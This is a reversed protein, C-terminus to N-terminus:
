HIVIPRKPQFQRLQPFNELVDQSVQYGDSLALKVDFPIRGALWHDMSRLSGRYETEEKVKRFLQYKVVCPEQIYQELLSFFTRVKVEDITLADAGKAILRSIANRGIVIGLEQHILVSIKGPSLTNNEDHLQLIRRMLLRNCLLEVPAENMQVIQNMTELRGTASLFLPLKLANRINEKTEIRLFDTDYKIAKIGVKELLRHISEQNQKSDIGIVRNPLNAWGDGDFLGQLVKIQFSRPTNLIWDIKAPTERHTENPKFGLVAQDFWTLIPSNCSYWQFAGYPDGKQPQLDSGPKTPIGLSTYYYAVRNGFTKSWPYKTSLGIKFYSNINSQMKIHGDSLSAGILYGFALIKEELTQISGFQNVWQKLITETPGFNTLKIELFSDPYQLNPLKELISFLQEFKTVESPVQIYRATLDKADSATPLWRLRPGPPNDPINAALRILYPRHQYRLIDSITDDPLKFHKELGHPHYGAEVLRLFALYRNADKQYKTFNPHNRIIDGFIFHKSSLRRVIDQFSYLGQDIERLKELREQHMKLNIARNEIIALLHPRSSKNRWSRITTESVGVYQAIASIPLKIDCHLLYSERILFYLKTQRHLKDFQAHDQILPFARLAEQYTLLDPVKTFNTPNVSTEKRLSLLHKISNAHPSPTSLLKHRFNSDEAARLLKDSPFIQQTEMNHLRETIAMQTREHDVTPITDKIEQHEIDSQENLGQEELDDHLEKEDENYERFERSM